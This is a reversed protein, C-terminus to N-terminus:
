SSSKSNSLLTVTVTSAKRSLASWRTWESHQARVQQDDKLADYKRKQDAFRARMKEAAESGAGSV